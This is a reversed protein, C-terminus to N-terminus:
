LRVLDLVRERLTANQKEVANLALELSGVYDLSKFVGLLPAADRVALAHWRPQETVTKLPGYLLEHEKPLRENLRAMILKM